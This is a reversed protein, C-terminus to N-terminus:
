RATEGAKPFFPFLRRLEADDPRRGYECIEFAEAQKVSNGQDSGYWKVLLERFRNATSGDRQVWAGRLLEKRKVPDHVSRQKLMEESGGAGGEYVQSALAEVANLKAEFVDDISVAVDPKFPYPKTFRDFFYFFVPNSKLAPVDPCFYPVTVMFAADQVLIGAYRHDPHYDWSRHCFVMDAQWERILRTITRRNELTPLLEGDHIDLTEAEIGIRRAAEIVEARRRQALPGGATNWHGIDGNTVSVFKVKHGLKAWKAACGAIRFEADDPHAGFAIIRLPRAADQAVAGLPALCLTLSALARCFTTFRQRKM